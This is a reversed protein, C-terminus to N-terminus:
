KGGKVMKIIKEAIKDPKAVVDVVGAKVAREPMSPLICSQPKQAIVRGGAEKIKKLGEVGDKGMGSLIVGVAKEGFAAAMSEFLVNGSPRFGNNLPSDILEIRNYRNVGMHIDEKGVYATHMKISGEEAEVVDLETARNLWKIFDPTFGKSIHQVIFFAASINRPISSLIKRVIGPGGTSSVLGVYSRKEKNFGEKIKGDVKVDGRSPTRAKALRKIKERLTRSFDELRGWDSIEPKELIEVAGLEIAKFIFRDGKSFASRALVIIPTPAVGMIHKITEFGNMIPMDIDMTIIDVDSESIKKVAERGNEATGVVEIKDDEKVVKKILARVTASDDVILLRIKSM